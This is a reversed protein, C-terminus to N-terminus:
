KLGAAKLISDATGSSIEKAGHRPVIFSKGTKPSYWEDHRTRHKTLSCGGKKLKQILESTKM